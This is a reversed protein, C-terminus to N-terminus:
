ILEDIMKGAVKRSDVKYTGDTIAKEIAQVKDTRIDPLQGIANKLEALEKAKGSLDVKDTVSSKEPGGKGAAAVNRGMGQVKLQVDKEPPKNGYIKM